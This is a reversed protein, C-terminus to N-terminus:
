WIVLGWSGSLGLLRTAWPSVQLSLFGSKGKPGRFSRRGLGEARYFGRSEEKLASKLSGIREGTTALKFLSKEM